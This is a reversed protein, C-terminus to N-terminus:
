QKKNFKAGKPVVKIGKCYELANGEDMRTLVIEKEDEEFRKEKFDEVFKMRIVKKKADVFATNKVMRRITGIDLDEKSEYNFLRPVFEKELAEMAEREKKEASRSEKEKIYDDKRTIVLYRDESKQKKVVEENDGNAPRNKVPIEQGIAKEVDDESKLEVFVSGSFNKAKDRRMRILVPEIYPSLIEKIDELTANRDFGCIHVVRKGVNKNMIYSLYEETEIKKMAEDKLEIVRSDKLAEKVDDVTTKLDKLRKFSIITEIPIFGDNLLSQQRLFKDVRFNADGFYFELQSKVKELKDTSM